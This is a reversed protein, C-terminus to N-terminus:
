VDVNYIKKVHAGGPLMVFLVCVINLAMAALVVPRAPLLEGVAGAALQGIIGGLINLMQFIGNFRGRMEDAVYSQTGSIRINFSTVGLIGVLLNFALMVPFPMYLYTGDLVSITLYVFIAIQFKRHVPYKFRYHIVGGILRGATAVSMIVTYQDIGTTGLSRFYPLVLTGVISSCLTTCFFYATITALGRERRLYDLGDKLDSRFRRFRFPEATRRAAHAEVARIRTEFLAAVLFSAANFLFLPAIGITRYCVGAIPVMITTALPYILSSISYARAFNGKSILTPYLSEYAVTYVSDIAGVLMALLLFLGYQFLDLRVLAYIVLFLGASIFDLTYIVRKREFRDLYPGALLPLIIRPLSYCIMYLAYLLVSETYDLVLLGIAFGSVANGFTSVVTGLTIIIFDRTWLPRKIPLQTDMGTIRDYCPAPHLPRRSVSAPRRARIRKCRAPPHPIIPDYM